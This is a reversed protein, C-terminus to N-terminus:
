IFRALLFGAVAGVALLIVSWLLRKFFRRAGSRRPKKIDMQALIRNAECLMDKESEKSHRVENRLVFCASDYIGNGDLKLVIMQKNIGKVMRKGGKEYKINNNKGTDM